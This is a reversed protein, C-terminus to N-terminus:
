TVWQDYSRTTLDCFMPTIRLDENSTIEIGKAKLISFGSHIYMRELRRQEKQLASKDETNIGVPYAQLLVGDVEMEEKLKKLLLWLYAKAYGIGRYPKFIEFHHLYAITGKVKTKAAHALTLTNRLNSLIRRMDLSQVPLKNISYDMYDVISGSIWDENFIQVEAKGVDHTSLYQGNASVDGKFEANVMIMENTQTHINIFPALRVDSSVTEAKTTM